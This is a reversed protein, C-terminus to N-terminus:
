RCLRVLFRLEFRENCLLSRLESLVSGGFPPAIHAAALIDPLVRDIRFPVARLLGEYVLLLLAPLAHFLVVLRVPRDSGTSPRRSHHTRCM